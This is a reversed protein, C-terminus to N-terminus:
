IRANHWQEVMGQFKSDDSFKIHPKTTSMKPIDGMSIDNVPMGEGRMIFPLRAEGKKLDMAYSENERSVANVFEATM